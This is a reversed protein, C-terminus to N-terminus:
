ERYTVHYDQSVRYLIPDADQEVFDIPGTSRTIGAVVIGAFTGRQGDLAALVAAALQQASEYTSAYSDVQIRQNAIRSQGDALTPWNTGGVSTYVIRSGTIRQDALAPYMKTGVLATVGSNNALINYIANVASM